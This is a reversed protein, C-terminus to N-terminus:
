VNGWSQQRNTRQCQWGMKGPGNASGNENEQEHGEADGGVRLEFEIGEDLLGLLLTDCRDVRRSWRRHTNKNGTSAPAPTDELFKESASASAL